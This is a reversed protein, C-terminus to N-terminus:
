LIKFTVNCKYNKCINAINRTNYLVDKYGIKGGTTKVEWERVGINGEGASTVVPKNEIDTLRSRFFLTIIVLKNYKKSEVHLHYWVTNTKTQSIESLM